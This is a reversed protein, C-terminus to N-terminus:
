HNYRHGLARDTRRQRTCVQAPRVRVEDDIEFQRLLVAQVALAGSAAILSAGAMVFFITFWKSGNGHVVLEGYGVGLGVNVAYFFAETISWDTASAPCM